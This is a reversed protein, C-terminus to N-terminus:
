QKNDKNKILLWIKVGSYIIAGAFSLGKLIETVLMTVGTIEDLTYDLVVGVFAMVWVKVISVGTDLERSVHWLFGNAM